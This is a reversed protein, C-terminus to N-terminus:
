RQNLTHSRTWARSYFQADAFLRVFHKGDVPKVHYGQLHLSIDRFTVPDRDIYLTHIAANPDVGRNEATDLQCRFYQSFYSPADSSLSAGSLKFLETGIQVPFVREHPLIHPIKTIPHDTWIRTSPSNDASKSSASTAM